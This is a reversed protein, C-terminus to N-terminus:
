VHQLGREVGVPQVGVVGQGPPTGDDVLDGGQGVGGRHAPVFPQAPVPSRWSGGPRGGFRSSYSGTRRVGRESPAGTLMGGTSATTPAVAVPFDARPTARARVSPPSTILASEM